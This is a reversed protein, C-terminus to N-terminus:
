AAAKAARATDALERLMQLLQRPTDLLHDAGWTV